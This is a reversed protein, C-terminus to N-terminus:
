DDKRDSIKGSFIPYVGARIACKEGFQHYQLALYLQLEDETLLTLNEIKPKSEKSWFNPYNLLTDEDMLFSITHPFHRRLRDLIAFGHTDLNGWYYIECQNLWKAQALAQWGYGAGLNEKM